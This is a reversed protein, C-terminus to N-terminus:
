IGVVFKLSEQNANKKTARLIYVGKPMEKKLELEVLRSNIIEVGALDTKLIEKGDIGYIQFNDFESIDKVRIQISNKQISFFVNEIKNSQPRTIGLTGESFNMEVSDILPSVNTVLSNDVSIEFQFGFGEPLDNLDILAPTSEVVRVYGPKHDYSESVNQWDTWEDLIDDGDVDVGVRAMVGDVWPGPSVYDTSQQTILYFQGEAFGVTPDPHGSGLEGAFDFEQYLSNSTFRATRISQGVPEYDSFLYYQSGVKIMTFDGYANQEPEHIEYTLTGSQPHQYTDFNGTPTTRQDIVPPHEHPEFGNIGDVSSTHGAYPSDWSYDRAKIPSWDEYIIHFLGDVDDRFVASDSGDSPDDFAIGEYTGVVGDDLNSDIIVHPDQDNPSDYYIYFEGDKYEASTTWRGVLGGNNTVPGRMEWNIMDSSFWSYYANTPGKALFYYNNDSVSVLIPADSANSPGVNSIPNWNDWVPSQKFVLSLAQISNDFSTITSTYTYDGNEDLPKALGDESILLNTSNLLNSNWSVEDDVWTFNNEETQAEGEPFNGSQTDINAFYLHNGQVSNLSLFAIIVFIATSALVILYRNQMM